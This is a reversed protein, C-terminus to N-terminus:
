FSLTDRMGKSSYIRIVNIAATKSTTIVFNRSFDSFCDVMLLLPRPKNGPNSGMSTFEDRIPVSSRAM